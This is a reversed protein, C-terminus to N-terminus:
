ASRSCPGGAVFQMAINEKVLQKCRQRAVRFDLNLDVVSLDRGAAVGIPVAMVTRGEKDHQLADELGMKLFSDQDFGFGSVNVRLRDRLEVAPV